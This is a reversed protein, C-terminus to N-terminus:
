EEHIWRRAEDKESIDFYQIKATTFAKCFVAMGKEWKKDGVIALREIDNFHHLDFKTDEWLAGATWGHFDALELLIRIKGHEKIRDEIEPVFVQYDERTLKGTLRVNVVNRPAEEEIEVAKIELTM